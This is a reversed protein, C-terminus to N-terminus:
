IFILCNDLRKQLSKFMLNTKEEKIIFIKKLKSSGM